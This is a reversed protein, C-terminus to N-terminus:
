VKKLRKKYKTKLDNTKLPKHFLKKEEESLPIDMAQRIMGEITSIGLGLSPQKRKQKRDM